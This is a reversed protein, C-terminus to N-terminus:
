GHWVSPLRASADIQDSYVARSADGCEEPRNGAKPLWLRTPPRLDM